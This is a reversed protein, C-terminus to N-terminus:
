IPLSYEQLSNDKHFTMELLEGAIDSSEVRMINDEADDKSLLNMSGYWVIRKDIVAYHECSDKMLEIHYGANRLEEMLEIRHEDSGYKYVEPHWTVVIIKIGAEQREKLMRIMRSVKYRGLTPSSIIIESVAEQLDKEYVSLYTEFDYIAGADQKFQFDTQVIIASKRDRGYM